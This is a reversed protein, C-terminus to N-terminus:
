SAITCIMVDCIHIDDLVCDKYIMVGYTHMDDLTEGKCIMLVFYQM